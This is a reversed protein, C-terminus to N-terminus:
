KSADAVTNLNVADAGAKRFYGAITALAGGVVLIHPWAQHALDIIVKASQFPDQGQAGAAIGGIATIAAGIITGKGKLLTGALTHIISLPNIM